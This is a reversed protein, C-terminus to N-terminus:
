LSGGTRIAQGGSAGPAVAIAALLAASLLWRFGRSGSFDASFIMSRASFTM